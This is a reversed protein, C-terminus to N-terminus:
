AMIAQLDASITRNSIGQFKKVQMWNKVTSPLFLRKQLNLGELSNSPQGNFEM